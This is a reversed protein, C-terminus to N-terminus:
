PKAEQAALADAREFAGAAEGTRGMSTLINGLYRYIGVQEGRNAEALMEHILRECEIWSQAMCADSTLRSRASLRLARRTEATAAQRLAEARAVVGRAEAIQGQASLLRALAGLAPLFDADLELARRLHTLARAHEQRYFFVLGRLLEAEAAPEGSLKGETAALRDLTEDHEGLQFLVLAHKRALDPDDPTESVLEGFISEAERYRGARYYVAALEARGSSTPEAATAQEYLRALAEWDQLYTYAAGLLSRLREDDDFRRRLEALTDLCGPSCTRLDRIEAEVLDLRSLASPDSALPRTITAEGDGGSIALTDGTAPACGHLAVALGIWFAPWFARFRRVLPRKVFNM